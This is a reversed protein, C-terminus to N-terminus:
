AIINTAYQRTAAADNINAVDDSILDHLDITADGVIMDADSTSGRIAVAHHPAIWGDHCLM